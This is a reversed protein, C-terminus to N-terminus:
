HSPCDGIGYKVLADFLTEIEEQTNYGQISVRLVKSGLWEFIPVEINFNNLLYLKLEDCNITNPLPITVMQLSQRIGTEITKGTLILLKQQIQKTLNACQDRVSEWNYKKQFEIAAPVSLHASIDRTGIWEHHDIFHSPGPQEAEYGWSVILPKLLHQVSPRAFLFGSGKPACLWKHLNGGYFDAGLEDLCLPIQGPAHAGDIITIIGETRARQILLQLPFLLSTPSTIHSIFIAKTRKSVGKWLLEVFEEECSYHIPIRQPVYNFGYEKSLFRWTRDMAGYEHNSSLAEDGFGLNLSRAVINISETVNSTYVLNEPSTGLFKGLHCRADYMLDRFRQGLFKVPQKELERQWEQYVRFVERPTAGFSGHNLYVVSTDLIFLRRLNKM